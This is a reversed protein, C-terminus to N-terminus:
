CIASKSSTLLVVISLCRVHSLLLCNKSRIPESRLPAHLTVKHVTGSPQLFIAFFFYMSCLSKYDAVGGNPLFFNCFSKRKRCPRNGGANSDQFLIADFSGTTIGITM